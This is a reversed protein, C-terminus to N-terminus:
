AEVPLFKSKEPIKQAVPKWQTTNQAQMWLNMLCIPELSPFDSVFSFINPQYFGIPYFKETKRYM